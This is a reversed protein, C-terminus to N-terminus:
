KKAKSIVEYTDRAIVLEENTPICFIKVKSQPSSIEKEESITRSNKRKDIVIGLFELGQCCLKRVQPAKEGIGATFVLADVGGM